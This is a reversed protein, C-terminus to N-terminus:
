SCHGVVDRRQHRVEGDLLGVDDAVAHAAHGAQLHRDPV